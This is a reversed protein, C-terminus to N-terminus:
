LHLPQCRKQNELALAIERRAEEFTLTRAPRVETLRILHFGLRSRVPPSIEGPQLKEAAAFLRPLMRDAAFYNLDGGRGKTAEDESFEPVLEEFSEGQRLREAIRNLLERKTKIVEDPYGEPAALFLQSARMRKPEQFERSHTVFYHRLESEDPELQPKIRNELWGRGRLNAIVERSIQSTSTLASRLSATWSKADPFQWRLLNMERDIAARDVPEDAAAADLRARTILQQLLAHQQNRATDPSFDGPTRGAAFLQGLWARELDRDYIGRTGVLAQLEGRKAIQGLVRRFAFHRTLYEGAGVGLLSAILILFAARKM